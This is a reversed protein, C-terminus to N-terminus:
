HVGYQMVYQQQVFWERLGYVQRYRPRLLAFLLKCVTLISFGGRIINPALISVWIFLGFVTPVVFSSIVGLSIVDLGHGLCTPESKAILRLSPEHFQSIRSFSFDFNISSADTPTPSDDVRSLFDRSDLIAGPLPLASPTSCCSSLPTTVPFLLVAPSHSLTSRPPSPSSILHHEERTPADIVEPKFM